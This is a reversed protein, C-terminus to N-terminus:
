KAMAKRRREREARFQTYERQQEPTLLENIRRNQEAQIADLEDKHREHFARYEARTEDLIAEIRSAQDPALSLRSTMEAM